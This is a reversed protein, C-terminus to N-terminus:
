AITLLISGEGAEVDRDSMEWPWTLKQASGRIRVTWHGRQWELPGGQRVDPRKRLFPLGLPGAWSSLLLSFGM